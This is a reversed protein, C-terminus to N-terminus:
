PMVGNMKLILYALAIAIGAEKATKWLRNDVKSLSKELSNVRENSAYKRDASNIFNRLDSRLGDVNKDINNLRETMTAIEAEKLCDHESKSMKETDTKPNVM